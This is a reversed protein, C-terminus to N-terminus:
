KSPKSLIIPSNFVFFSPREHRLLYTTLMDRRGKVVLFLSTPMQTNKTKSALNFTFLVHEWLSCCHSLHMSLPIIHSKPQHLVPMVGRKRVSLNNELMHIHVSPFFM